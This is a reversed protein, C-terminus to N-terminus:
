ASAGELESREQSRRALVLEKLMQYQLDNSKDLKSDITRELMELLYASQTDGLEALDNLNNLYDIDSQDDGYKLTALAEILDNIEDSTKAGSALALARKTADSVGSFGIQDLSLAPTLAAILDNITQNTALDANDGVIRVSLIDASLDMADAYQNLSAALANKLEEDYAGAADQLGQAANIYSDWLSAIQDSTLDGKLSGDANYLGNLRDAAQAYDRKWQDQDREVLDSALDRAQNALTKLNNVFDRLSNTASEIASDTQELWEVFSAESKIRELEANALTKIAEVYQEAALKLEDFMATIEEVNANAGLAAILEELMEGNLIKNLNKPDFMGNLLEQYKAIEGELLSIDLSLEPIGINYAGDKEGILDKLINDLMGGSKGEGSQQKKLADLKAQAADMAKKIEDYVGFPLDLLERNGEAIESKLREIEAKTDKIAPHQEENLGWAFMFELHAELEKIRQENAPIKARYALIRNNIAEVSKNAADLYSLYYDKAANFNDKATDLDYQAMNVGTISAVFRDVEAFISYVGNMAEAFKKIGEATLNGYNDGGFQKLFGVMQAQAMTMQAYIYTTKKKTGFLTKKSSKEIGVLINYQEQDDYYRAMLAQMQNEIMDSYVKTSKDVNIEITRLAENFGKIKKVHGTSFFGAIGGVIAGIIAGIATGIGPEVYTGIMAGTTAGYGIGMQPKQDHWGTAAADVYNTANIAMALAINKRRLYYFMERFAATAQATNDAIEQLIDRTETKTWEATALSAVAALAMGAGMAGAGAQINSWNIDGGSLANSLEKSLTQSFQQAFVDSLSQAFDGAFSKFNFKGNQFSNQIGKTIAAAITDAIDKQLDNPIIEDAKLKRQESLLEKTKELEAIRTIDSDPNLAAIQKEINLIETDYALIQKKRNAEEETIEGRLIANDLALNEIKELATNARIFEDIIKQTEERKIKVLEINEMENIKEIIDALTATDKVLEVANMKMEVFQAIIQDSQNEFTKIYQDKIKKQFSVFEKNAADNIKKLEASQIEDVLKWAQKYEESDPAIKATIDSRMQAIKANLKEVDSLLLKDREAQYKEVLSLAEDANFLKPTEVGNAKAELRSLGEDIEKIKKLYEDAERTLDDVKSQKEIGSSRGFGFFGGGTQEMRIAELRKELAEQEYQQKLLLLNAKSYENNKLKIEDFTEALKEGESSAFAFYTAIGALGAIIATFPTALFAAKFGTMARNLGNTAVAAAASLKSMTALEIAYAASLKRVIGMGGALAIASVKYVSFGAAASAAVVGIKKIGNITEQITEGNAKLFDIVSKIAEKTTDIAGSTELATAYIKGIEEQLDGWLNEKQSQQGGFSKAIAEAAGAYSNKLQDIIVKQAKATDGAGILNKILDKQGDSFQVGARSLASLGSVPDNLARGLMKTASILDVELVTSLDTAATIADNFIDGKINRFTLLLSQAAIVAEDGFTTIDQIHGAFDQLEKSSVGAAGGTAALVANLKAVAKEQTIYADTYEKTYNSIGKLINTIGLLSQATFATRQLYKDFQGVMAGADKAARQTAELSANFTKIGGTDASASINVKINNEAM